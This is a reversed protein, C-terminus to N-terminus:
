AAAQLPEASQEVKPEIRWGGTFMAGSEHPVYKFVNPAGIVSNPIVIFVENPTPNYSTAIISKIAENREIADRDNGRILKIVEIPQDSSSIGLRERIDPLVMAIVDPDNPSFYPLASKDKAPTARRYLGEEFQGIPLNLAEILSM